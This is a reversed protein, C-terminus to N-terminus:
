TWYSRQCALAVLRAVSLDAKLQTEAQIRAAHCESESLKDGLKVQLYHGDPYLILAFLAFAIM